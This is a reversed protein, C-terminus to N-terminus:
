RFLDEISTQGDTKFLTFQTRPAYWGWLLWNRLKWRRTRVTRFTFVQSPASGKTASRLKRNRALKRLAEREAIEPTRAWVTRSVYMEFGPNLMGESEVKVTVGFIPM